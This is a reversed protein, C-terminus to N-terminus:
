ISIQKLISNTCNLYEQDLKQKMLSHKIQKAQIHGPIYVHFGREHGGNEWWRNHLLDDRIEGKYYM